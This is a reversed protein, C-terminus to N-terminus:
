DNKMKDEFDSVSGDSSPLVRIAHTREHTVSRLLQAINEPTALQNKDLIQLLLQRDKDREQRDKDEKVQQYRRLSEREQRLSEREQRNALLRIVYIVGAAVVVFYHFINYEGAPAPATVINIRGDESSTVNYLVNPKQVALEQISKVNLQAMLDNVTEIRLASPASVNGSMQEQTSLSFPDFLCVGHQSASSEAASPQITSELRSPQITQQIEEVLM